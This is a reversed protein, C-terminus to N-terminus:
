DEVWGHSCIEHLRWDTPEDLAAGSNSVVVEVADFERTTHMSRYFDPAGPESSPVSQLNPSASDTEQLVGDLYTRLELDRGVNVQGTAGGPPYSFFVGADSGAAFVEGEPATVRLVAGASPASQPVDVIAFSYGDDDAVGAANEITCGPCPTDAVAGGLISDCTAIIRSSTGGGGGGIGGGGGGCATLTLGLLVATPIRMALM